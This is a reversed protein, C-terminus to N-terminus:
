FTPKRTLVPRSVTTDCLSIRAPSVKMSGDFPEVVGTWSRAGSNTFNVAWVGPPAGAVKETITTCGLDRIPTSSSVKYRFPVVSPLRTRVLRSFCASDSPVYM